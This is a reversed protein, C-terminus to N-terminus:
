VLPTSYHMNQTRLKGKRQWEESNGASNLASHLELHALRTGKRFYDVAQACSADDEMTLSAKILLRVAKALSAFGLSSTCYLNMLQFAITYNLSM